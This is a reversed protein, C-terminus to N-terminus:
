GGLFAARIAVDLSPGFCAEVKARASAGIVERLAPDDRLAALRECIGADDDPDVVFGDVGDAILEAFGVDRSCIVPLGCAMAEAVIRGSAEVLLPSTRYVFADLSRLFAGAEEEGPPLLEIGPVPSSPSFHRLLVTGGLIRVRSGERVLRRYLAPDRPHFKRHDNRSHRGVTFPRKDRPGRQGPRFRSLDIPTRYAIGQLGSRRRFTESPMLLRIPLGTQDHLAHVLDLLSVPDDLNHVVVLREPRAAKAWCPPSQWGGLFALVGGSPRDGGAADVMRVGRRALIPPVPGQSAWLSV